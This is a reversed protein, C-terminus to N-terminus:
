RYNSNIQNNCLSHCTALGLIAGFSNANERRIEFYYIMQCYTVNKLRRRLRINWSDKRRWRNYNLGFISNEYRQKHLM